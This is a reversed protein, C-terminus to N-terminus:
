AIRLSNVFRRFEEPAPEGADPADYLHITYLRDVQDILLTEDEIMVPAMDRHRFLWRAKFRLCECNSLQRTTPPDIVEFDKLLLSFGVLGATALEELTEYGAKGEEDRFITIAPSFRPIGLEIKSLTAVLTAAQEQLLAEEDEPSPNEVIQGDLLTRFDKFANFHWRDPKEFGLGLRPDIYYNDRITAAGLPDLAMGGLAAAAFRLFEGRGIGM